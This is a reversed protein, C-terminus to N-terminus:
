TSSLFAHLLATVSDLQPLLLPFSIWFLCSLLVANLSARGCDPQETSEAKAPEMAEGATQPNQNMRGWSTKKVCYPQPPLLFSCRLEQVKFIINKRLYTTICSLGSSLFQRQQSRKRTKPREKNAIPGSGQRVQAQLIVTQILGWKQLKIRNNEGM